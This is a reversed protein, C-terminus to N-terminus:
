NPLAYAVVHVDQEVCQTLLTLTSQCKQMVNISPSLYFPTLSQQHQLDARSIPSYICNEETSGINHLEEFLQKAWHWPKKTNSGCLKSLVIERALNVHIM